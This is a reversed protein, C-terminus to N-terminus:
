DVPTPLSAAHQVRLPTKFRNDMLRYFGVGSFGPREAVERYLPAPRNLSLRKQSLFHAAHFSDPVFYLCTKSEDASQLLPACVIRDAFLVRYSASSEKWIRIASPTKPAISGADSLNTGRKDFSSPCATHLTISDYLCRPTSFSADRQKQSASIMLEFRTAGVKAHITYHYCM